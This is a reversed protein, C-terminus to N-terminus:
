LYVFRNEMNIRRESGALHGSGWETIPKIGLISERFDKAQSQYFDLPLGTTVNVIDSESVLQIATNLLITTYMNNFREREFVRTTSLSEKEALEVVFYSKNDFKINMNSDNHKLKVFSN